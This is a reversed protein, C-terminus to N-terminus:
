DSKEAESYDARREMDHNEVERNDFEEDLRKEFADMIRENALTFAEDHGHEFGVADHALEHAYVDLAEIVTVGMSIDIVVSGDDHWECLGNEDPKLEDPLVWQTTTKPHNPYLREFGDYMLFFLDNDFPHM